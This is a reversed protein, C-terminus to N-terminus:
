DENPRVFVGYRYGSCLADAVAVEHVHITDSSPFNHQAASVLPACRDSGLTVLSSAANDEAGDGLVSRLFLYKGNGCGLDVGVSGPPLTALFRPILPWPKTDSSSRDAYRTDHAPFITRLKTTYATTLPRVVCAHVNDQEYLASNVAALADALQVQQSARAM